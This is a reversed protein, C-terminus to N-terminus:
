KGRDSCRAKQHGPKGCLYCSGWSTGSYRSSSDERKAKASGSKGSSGAKVQASPEGTASDTAMVSLTEEAAKFKDLQLEMVELLSTPCEPDDYSFHLQQRVADRYRALRLGLLM